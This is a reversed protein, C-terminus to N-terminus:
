KNDCFAINLIRMKINSTLVMCGVDKLSAEQMAGPVLVSFQFRRNRMANKYFAARRRNTPKTIGVLMYRKSFTYDKYFGVSLEINLLEEETVDEGIEFDVVLWRYINIGMSADIDICVRENAKIYNSLDKTAVIKPHTFSCYGGKGDATVHSFGIVDGSFSPHLYASVDETTGPMWISAKEVINRSDINEFKVNVNKGFYCNYGSLRDCDRLIVVGTGKLEFINRENYPEVEEFYCRNFTLPNYKSGVKDRVNNRNGEICCNDFVINLGMVTTDIMIGTELNADIDCAMFNIANSTYEVLVGVTNRRISVNTFTDIWTNHTLLGIRFHRINLNDLRCERASPAAELGIYIGCTNKRISSVDEAGLIDFDSLRIRPGNIEFCRSDGTYLITSHNRGVIDIPEELRITSKVRYYSTLVVTKGLAVAKRIAIGDDGNGSEAAGFWEPYVEVVNWTGVLKVQSGFLKMLGADIRTSQGKISYNGSISGGRFELECGEPLTIDGGLKFDKEITYVTNKQKFYDQTLVAQSSSNEAAGVPVASFGRMVTSMLFVMLFVVRLYVSRM